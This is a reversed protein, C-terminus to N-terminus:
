LSNQDNRTKQATSCLKFFADVGLRIIFSLINRSLFRRAGYLTLKFRLQTSSTRLDIMWSFVFSYTVNQLMKHKDDHFYFCHLQLYYAFGYIERTFEIFVLYCSLTITIFCVWCFSKEETVTLYISTFLYLQVKNCLTKHFEPFM